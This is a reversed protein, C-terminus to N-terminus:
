RIFNFTPNKSNEIGEPIVYFLAIQGFELRTTKEISM